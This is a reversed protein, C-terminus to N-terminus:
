DRHRKNPKWNIYDQENKRKESLWKIYEEREIKEEEATVFKEWLMDLLYEDVKGKYTDYLYRKKRGYTKLNQFEKKLNKLKIGRKELTKSTALSIGFYEYTEKIFVMSDRDQTNTHQQTAAGM